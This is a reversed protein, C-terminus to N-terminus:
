EKKKSISPDELIEDLLSSLGDTRKQLYEPMKKTEGDSKTVDSAAAGANRKRQNFNNNNNGGRARMNQLVSSSDLSSASSKAFASNKSANSLWAGTRNNASAGLPN